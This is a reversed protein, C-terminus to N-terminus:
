IYFELKHACFLVNKLREAINLTACKIVKAPSLFASFMRFHCYAEM